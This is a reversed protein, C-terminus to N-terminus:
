VVSKRDADEGFAFQKRVMHWYDEGSDQARALQPVLSGSAALLAATSRMFDRRSTTSSHAEKNRSYKSTMGTGM